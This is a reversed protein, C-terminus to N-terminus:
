TRECEVQGPPDRKPPPDPSTQELVPEAPEPETLSSGGLIRKIVNTPRRLPPRKDYEETRIEIKNVTM